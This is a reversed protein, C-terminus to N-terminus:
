EIDKGIDEMIVNQRHHQRYKFLQQEMLFPFQFLRPYQHEPCYGFTSSQEKTTHQSSFM